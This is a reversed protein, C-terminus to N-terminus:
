KEKQIQVNHLIAMIQKNIFKMGIINNYLETLSIVIILAM